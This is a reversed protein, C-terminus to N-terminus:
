QRVRYLLPESFGLWEGWGRGDDIAILRVEKGVYPSLDFDVRWSRAGAPVRVDMRGDGDTDLGISLNGVNPGWITYTLLHLGPADVKVPRSVLRGVDADGEVHSGIWSRMRDDPPSLSKDFIANPAWQGDAQFDTWELKATVAMPPDRFAPVREDVKLLFPQSVELRGNGAAPRDLRLTAPGSGQLDVTDLSVAQWARTVPLSRRVEGNGRALSITLPSGADCGACRVQFAVKVRAAPLIVTAM